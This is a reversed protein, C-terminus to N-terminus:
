SGSFEHHCLYDLVSQERVRSLMEVLHYVRHGVKTLTYGYKRISTAIQELRAQRRLRMLIRKSPVKSM